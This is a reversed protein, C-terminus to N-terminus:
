PTTATPATTTTTTTTTTPPAPTTTTTPTQAATPAAVLDLTRWVRGNDQFVVRTFGGAKAAAMTKDVRLARERPLLGNLSTSTAMCVLATGQSVLSRCSAAGEPLTVVPLNVVEPPRLFVLAAIVVVALVMTAAAFKTAHNNAPTTPAKAAGELSSVDVGKAESKHPAKAAPVKGSTPKLGALAAAMDASM